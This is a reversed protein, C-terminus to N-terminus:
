PLKDITWDSTGSRAVVINSLRPRKRKKSGGPAEFVAIPFSYRSTSLKKGHSIEYGQVAGAVSFLDQLHDESIHQKLTDALMLVGTEQDQTQWAHLFRNATALAVVYDDDVAPASSAIRSRAEVPSPSIATVCGVLIFAAVASFFAKL